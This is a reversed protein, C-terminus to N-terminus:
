EFDDESPPFKVIGDMDKWGQEIIPWREPWISAYNHKYIDVFFEGVEFTVLPHVESGEFSVANEPLKRRSLVLNVLVAFFDEIMPQATEPKIEFADLVTTYCVELSIHELAVNQSSLLRGSPSFRLTLAKFLGILLTPNYINHFILSTLNPLGTLASTLHPHSIVEDSDLEVKKLSSSSDLFLTHFRHALQSADTGTGVYLHLNEVCSFRIRVLLSALVNFDSTVVSLTYVHSVLLPPSSESDSIVIAEAALSLRINISVLSPCQSFCRELTSVHFPQRADELELSIYLHRISRSSLSALSEIASCEWALTQLAECSNIVTFLAWSPHQALEEFNASIYGPKLRLRIERLNPLSGPKLLRALTDMSQEYNLGVYVNRWRQAHACMMKMYSNQSSLSIYSHRFDVAYDVPLPRSYDLWARLTPIIHASPVVPIHLDNWLTPTSLVVRRWERCVMTLLLPAKRPHFPGDDLCSAFITQAIELPLPLTEM